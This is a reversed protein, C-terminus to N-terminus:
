WNQWTPMISTIDVIQRCIFILCDRFSFRPQPLAIEEGM